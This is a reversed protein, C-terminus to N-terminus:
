PNRCPTQNKAIKPPILTVQVISSAIFFRVFGEGEGRGRGQPSLPCAFAEDLSPSHRSRDWAGFSPALAARGHGVRDFAKACGARGSSGLPEGEGEPLPRPSPSPILRDNVAKKEATPEPRLEVSFLSSGLTQSPHSVRHKVFMATRLPNKKNVGQKLPTHSHSLPTRVAEATKSLAYFSNFCNKTEAGRLVGRQLPTNIIYHSAVIM